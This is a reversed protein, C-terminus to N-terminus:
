PLLSCVVHRRWGRQIISAAADETLKAESSSKGFEIRVSSNRVFNEDFSSQRSSDEQKNEVSLLQEKGKIKLKDRWWKQIVTACFEKFPRSISLAKM